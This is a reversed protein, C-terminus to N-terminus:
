NFPPSTMEQLGRPQRAIPPCCAAALNAASSPPRHTDPLELHQDGFANLSMYVHM